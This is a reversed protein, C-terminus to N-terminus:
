ISAEIDSFSFDLIRSYLDKRIDSTTGVSAKVSFYSGLVGGCIMILCAGFMVAATKLIYAADHNAVGNDIILSMLKPIWVEGFVETLMMVPGFIYAFRYPKAYKLYNKM